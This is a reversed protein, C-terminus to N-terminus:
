KSMWIVPGGFLRFVYTRVYRRRHVDWALDVNVYGHIDMSYPDGSVDNRYCISYESTGRLYRFVRKVPAWHDRGFNDM